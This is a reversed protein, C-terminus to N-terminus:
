PSEAQRFFTPDGPHLAKALQFHIQVVSALTANRPNQRYAGTNEISAIPKHSYPNQVYAFKEKAYTGTRSSSPSSIHADRKFVSQCSL